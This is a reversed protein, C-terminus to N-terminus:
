LEEQDENKKKLSNRLCLEAIQEANKGTILTDKVIVSTLSPRKQILEALSTAGAPTIPNNSLNMQSIFDGASGALLVECLQSIQPSELNNDRLNM